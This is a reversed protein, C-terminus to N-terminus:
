RRFMAHIEEAIRNRAEIDPPLAPAAPHKRFRATEKYFGQFPSPPAFMILGPVASPVCVDILYRWAGWANAKRMQEPTVEVHQDHPHVLNPDGEVIIWAHEVGGAVLGHCLWADLQDADTADRLEDYIIAAFEQAFARGEPDENCWERARQAYTKHSQVNRQDYDIRLLEDIERHISEARRFVRSREEEFRGAM